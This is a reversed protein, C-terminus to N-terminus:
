AMPDKPAVRLTDTTGATPPSSEGTPAVRALAPSGIQDGSSRASRTKPRGADPAPASVSQHHIGTSPPAATALPTYRTSESCRIMRESVSLRGIGLVHVSVPTRNAPLRVASERLM